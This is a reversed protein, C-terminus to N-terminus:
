VVILPAVVATNFRVFTVAAMFLLLYRQKNDVGAQVPAIGDLAAISVTCWNGEIPNDATGSVLKSGPWTAVSVAVGLAAGPPVNDVLKHKLPVTKLLVPLEYVAVTSFM